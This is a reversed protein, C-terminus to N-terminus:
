APRTEAGVKSRIHVEALLRSYHEEMQQKQVQWSKEAELSLRELKDLQQDHATQMQKM